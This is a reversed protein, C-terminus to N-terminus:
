SDKRPRGVRPRAIELDFAAPEVAATEDEEAAEFSLSRTVRGSRNMEKAFDIGFEKGFAIVSATDYDHWIRLHRAIHIAENARHDTCEPCSFVRINQGALQPWLVLGDKVKMTPPINGRLSQRLRDADYWHFTLIQEIPFEAAGGPQALLVGWPGYLEFPGDPDNDRRKAEIYGYRELPIYGRVIKGRQISEQTDGWGIWGAQAHRGGDVTVRPTRYFCVRESRQRSNQSMRRASAILAEDQEYNATMTM